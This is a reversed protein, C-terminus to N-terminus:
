KSYNTIEHVSISKLYLYGSTTEEGITTIPENFIISIYNIKEREFVVKGQSDNQVNELTKSELLINVSDYAKFVYNEDNSESDVYTKLNFLGFDIDVSLTEEYSPINIHVESKLSDWRFGQEFIFAPEEDATAVYAYNEDFAAIEGTFDISHLTRVQNDQNAGGGFITGLIILLLLGITILAIFLAPLYSIWRGKKKNNLDKKHDRDATKEKLDNENTDTM